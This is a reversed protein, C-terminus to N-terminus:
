REGNGATAPSDSELLAEVVREMHMSRSGKVLVAGPAQWDARVAEALAQWRDFHRAGRGFASAARRSLEGLAYLREVGAERALRGVQEHLSAADGGLEAMDGLVLWKCGDAAALVQLAAALSAPNANYTDDYVQMGGPAARVQLRGAEAALTPLGRSVDELDAGAALAAAVAALANMVNHRGPLPLELEVEGAGTHLRLHSGGGRPEWRARVDAAQQLGFTVVRAQAACECWVGAYPDDANIVAVGDAGLGSFIEGKARAVGEISGFGELHAAAANTIVAVDPKAWGTLVAIEGAHNAGMEVVAFQHRDQLELLTLPVGIENNLNGRTALVQGRQRLIAAIMEKTTTKGNSGTVAVLPVPCQGRWLAALRGLAARADGVVLQPLATVVEHAVMVACAGNRAAQAVFQHGDFSPGRLAVFLDGPRLTRTDTSVHSFSADAGVLRAGLADAARSLLM